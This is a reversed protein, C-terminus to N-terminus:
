IQRIIIIEDLEGFNQAIRYTFIPAQMPISKLLKFSSKCEVLLSFRSRILYIPSHLQLSQFSPIAIGTIPNPRLLQIFKSMM